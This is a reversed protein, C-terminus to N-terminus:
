SALIGGYFNMANGDRDYLTVTRGGSISRIMAMGVLRRTGGGAPAVRLMLDGGSGGFKCPGGRGRKVTAAIGVENRLPSSRGDQRPASPLAGNLSSLSVHNWCWIQCTVTVDPLFPTQPLWVALQRDEGGTRVDRLRVSTPRM